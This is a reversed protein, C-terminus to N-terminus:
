SGFAGKDKFSDLAKKEDDYIEFIMSVKTMNLLDNIKKSLNLLKLKGGQNAVTTFGAVLQGIGSSDIATVGALNLLINKRNTAILNRLEDRLTGTGEGLTIRGSVDLVTVPGEQRPTIKASV